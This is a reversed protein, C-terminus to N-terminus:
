LRLLTIFVFLILIGLVIHIVISCLFTTKLGDADNKGIDFSLNRQTGVAMATNLFSLMAIIGAVLSYLGFDNTGLAELIWRTSLLTFVMTILMKGYLVVTNFFIRKNSDM